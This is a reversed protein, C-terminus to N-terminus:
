AAVERFGAPGHDYVPSLNGVIVREADTLSGYAAHFMEYSPHSTSLAVKLTNDKWKLADQICCERVVTQNGFHNHNCAHEGIYRNNIVLIYPM